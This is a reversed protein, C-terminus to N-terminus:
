PCYVSMAMNMTSVINFTVPTSDVSGASNSVVVDYTGAQATSDFAFQYTASTAGSIPTRASTSSTFYWQYSLNSGSAQVTFSVQTPSFTTNFNCSLSGSRVIYGTVSAPESTITPLASATGSVTITGVQYYGVHFPDPTVGSGPNISIGTGTSDIFSMLVTYSGDAANAPLNVSTALAQGLVGNVVPANSNVVLPFIGSFLISGGSGEVIVGYNAGATLNAPAPSPISFNYTLDITSGPAATVTSSNSQAFLVQNITIPSTTGGSSSTPTGVSAEQSQSPQSLNPNKACNQFLFLVGVSCIAIASLIRKNKM